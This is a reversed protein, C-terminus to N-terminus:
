IPTIEWRNCVYLIVKEELTGTGPLDAEPVVFKDYFVTVAEIPPTNDVPPNVTYFLNANISVMSNSMNENAFVTLLNATKTLVIKSQINVNRIVSMIANLLNIIISECCSALDMPSM